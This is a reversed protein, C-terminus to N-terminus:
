DTSVKVFSRFIVFFFCGIEMKLENVKGSSLKGRLEDVNAICLIKHFFRLEGPM